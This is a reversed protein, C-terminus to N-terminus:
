GSHPENHLVIRGAGPPPTPQQEPARRPLRRRVVRWTLPGSGERRELETAAEEASPRKRPDPDTLAAVLARTAPNVSKRAAGLPPLTRTSADVDDERVPVFSSYLQHITIGLAHLDEPVNSGTVAGRELEPPAYGPTGWPIDSPSEVRVAGEFDIPRLRGDDDVILNLPKLDRWVWGSAHIDAVLRATRAAFADATAVPLKVRPHSCLAMLNTGELHEIALYSHGPAEFGGLVEPVPVGSARLAELAHRESEVLACGDSGDVATEGHRRGEKVICKRAPITRIDIAQYVGGKGRQSLADYILFDTRLEPVLPTEYLRFPNSIWEPCAHGPERRDTWLKGSPDQIASARSGDPEVIEILRFGGYRYYVSGGPRYPLDFPVPPGAYGRTRDDLEAALATAAAANRPYVTIFKGVQSFGYFIGANLRALIKLDSAAKFLVDHERLYPGCAELVDCATLVTASVHLKWGQNPEDERMARSFRWNPDEESREPLFRDALDHWRPDSDLRRGGGARLPAPVSVEREALAQLTM